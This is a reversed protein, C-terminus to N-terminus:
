FDDDDLASGNDEFPVLNTVQIKDLWLSTGWEKVFPHDKNYTVRVKVDSGNGIRTNPVDFPNKDEDIVPVGVVGNPYGESISDRKAFKTHSVIYPGGSTHEKGNKNVPPKIKVGNKELLEVSEDSLDGIDVQFRNNYDDHKHLHTWYAKGSIVGKEKQQAMM